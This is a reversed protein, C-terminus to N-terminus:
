PVEKNQDYSDIADFYHEVFAEDLSVVWEPDDFIDNSISDSIIKTIKLYAHSFVARSDKISDYWNRYVEIRSAVISIREKHTLKKNEKIEIKGGSVKIPFEDNIRGIRHIKEVAEGWSCKLEADINNGDELVQYSGVWDTGLLPMYYTAKLGGNGIVAPHQKNHQFLLPIPGFREISRVNVDSGNLYLIYEERLVYITIGFKKIVVRNSAVGSKGREPFALIESYIKSPGFLTEVVAMLLTLIRYKLVLKNGWYNKWDKIVFSFSGEWKGKGIKFYYIHNDKEYM